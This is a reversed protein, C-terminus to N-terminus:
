EHVHGGETGIGPNKKRDASAMRTRFKIDKKM